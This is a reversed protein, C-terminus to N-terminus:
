EGSLQQHYQIEGRQYSTLLLTGLRRGIKIKPDFAQLSAYESNGRWEYNLATIQQAQDQTTLQATERGTVKLVEYGAMRASPQPKLPQGVAANRLEAESGRQSIQLYGKKEDTIAIGEFDPKDMQAMAAIAKEQAMNMALEQALEKRIDKLLDGEVKGDAAALQRAVGPVYDVLRLRYLADSGSIPLERGQLTFGRFIQKYETLARDFDEKKGEKARLQRDIDMLAFEIGSEKFLENKTIEGTTQPKDGSVGAKLGRAALAQDAQIQALTLISAAEVDAEGLNQKALKTILGNLERFLTKEAEEKRYTNRYDNEVDQKVEEFPKEKGDATKYSSKRKEYHKKLVEDTIKPELAPVVLPVKVYEFVWKPETWLFPYRDRNQATQNANLFKQAREQLEAPKLAGLEKDAAELYKQAPIVLKRFAVQTKEQAFTLDAMPLPVVATDDLAQLLKRVTLWERVALKYEWVSGVRIVNGILSEVKKQLEKADTGTYNMQLRIFTGVEEDTVAINRRHAEDRLVMSFFAAIRESEAQSGGFAPSYGDFTFYVPQGLHVGRLRVFFDNFEQQSYKKGFAEGIVAKGPNYAVIDTFGFLCFSPIVVIAVIWYILKQRDRFKQLAM